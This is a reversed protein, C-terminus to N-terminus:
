SIQPGLVQVAAVSVENLVCGYRKQKAIQGDVDMHKM